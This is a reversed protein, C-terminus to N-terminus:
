VAVAQAIALDRTHSLSIEVERVGSRRALEAVAGDLRVVPRGTASSVVEVDHWRMGAVKGSGLAKLVAEKAAFRAALREPRSGCYEIESSTFLRAEAREYRRLLRAVRGVEM